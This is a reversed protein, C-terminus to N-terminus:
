FNRLDSEPIKVQGSVADLVEEIIDGPRLHSWAVGLSPDFGDISTSLVHHKLAAYARERIESITKCKRVKESYNSRQMDTMPKYTYEFSAVVENNSMKYRKTKGRKVSDAPMFPSVEEPDKEPEKEPEEALEAKEEAPLDYDPLEEMQTEGINLDQELDLEQESKVGEEGEKGM